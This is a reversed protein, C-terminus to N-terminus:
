MEVRYPRDMQIDLLMEVIANYEERDIEIPEWEALRQFYGERLIDNLREYGPICKDFDLGWLMKSDHIMDAITGTKIIFHGEKRDYQGKYDAGPLLYYEIKM